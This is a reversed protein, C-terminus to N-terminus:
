RTNVGRVSRATWRSQSVASEEFSSRDAILLRHGCAVSCLAVVNSDTYLISTTGVDCDSYSPLVIIM